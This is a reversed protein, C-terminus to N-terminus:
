PSPWAPLPWFGRIAAIGQAGHARATALDDLGLGGIAYLPLVCHERLRAFADWGMAPADPHSATPMVPGLVAFDCGLQEARQLDGRDHCSAAVLQGPELPRQELGALQAARLHVGIGLARAQDIDGNLLVQTDHERCLAVAERLL